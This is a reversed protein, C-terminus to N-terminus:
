NQCSRRPACPPGALTSLFFSHLDHYGPQKKLGWGEGGLRFRMARRRQFCCSFCSQLLSQEGGPAGRGEIVRPAPVRRRISPPTPCSSPAITVGIHTDFQRLPPPKSVAHSRHMRLSGESPLESHAEMRWPRSDLFCNCGESFPCSARM